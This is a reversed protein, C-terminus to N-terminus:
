SLIAELLFGQENAERKDFESNNRNCNQIPVTSPAIRRCYRLSAPTIPPSVSFPVLQIFWLLPQYLCKTLLKNHNIICTNVKGGVHLTLFPYFILTYSLIHTISTCQIKNQKRRKDGTYATDNENFRIQQLSM